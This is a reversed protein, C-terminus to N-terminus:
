NKDEPADEWNGGKIVYLDAKSFAKNDEVQEPEADDNPLTLKFFEELWDERQMAYHFFDTAIHMAEKDEESVVDSVHLEVTGDEQFFLAGTPPSSGTTSMKMQM